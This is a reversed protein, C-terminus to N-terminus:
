GASQDRTLINENIRRVYGYRFHWTAQLGEINLKHAPQVGFDIKNGDNGLCISQGIIFDRFELGPHTLPM